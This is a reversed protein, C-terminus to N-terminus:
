AALFDRGPKVEIHILRISEPLGTGKIFTIGLVDPILLFLFIFVAFFHSVLSKAIGCTSVTSLPFWHYDLTFTRLGPRVSSPNCVCVCVYVYMCCVYMCVYM